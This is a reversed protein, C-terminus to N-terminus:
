TDHRSLLQINYDEAVAYWQGHKRFGAVRVFPSELWDLFPDAQRSATSASM